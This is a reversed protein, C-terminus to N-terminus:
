VAHGLRNKYTPGYGCESRFIVIEGKRGEKRGEQDLAGAAMFM